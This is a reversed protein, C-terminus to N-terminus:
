QWVVRKSATYMHRSYMCKAYHLFLAFITLPSSFLFRCFADLTQSWKFSFCFSFSPITHRNYFVVIKGLYCMLGWAHQWWTLHNYLFIATVHPVKYNPNNSALTSRRHLEQQESNTGKHNFVSIPLGKPYFFFLWSFSIYHLSIYADWCFSGLRRFLGM